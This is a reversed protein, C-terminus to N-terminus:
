KTKRKKKKKIIDKNDEYMQATRSAGHIDAIRLDMTKICITATTKVEAMSNVAVNEVNALSDFATFALAVVGALVSVTVFLAIILGRVLAKTDPDLPMPIEEYNNVNHLIAKTKEKEDSAFDM